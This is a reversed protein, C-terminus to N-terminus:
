ESWHSVGTTNNLNYRNKEVSDEDVHIKEEEIRRWRRRRRKV